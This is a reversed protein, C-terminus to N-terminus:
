AGEGGSPQASDCHIRNLHGDFVAECGDCIFLPDPPRHCLPTLEIFGCVPCSHSCLTDGAKCIPCEHM